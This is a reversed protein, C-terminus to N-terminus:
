VTKDLINGKLMDQAKDLRGLNYAVNFYFSYFDMIKNKDLVLDADAARAKRYALEVMNILENALGESLRNIHDNSM